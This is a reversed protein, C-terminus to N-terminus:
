RIMCARIQQYLPVMYSGQLFSVGKPQEQKYAEKLAATQEAFDAPDVIDQVMSQAIASQKYRVELEEATKPFTAEFGPKIQRETRVTVSTLFDAINAGPPCLFGLDEFYQKAM